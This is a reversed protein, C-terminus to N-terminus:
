SSCGQFEQLGAVCCLRFCSSYSSGGTVRSRTQCIINGLVCIYKVYGKREVLKFESDCYIFYSCFYVSSITLIFDVLCFAILM